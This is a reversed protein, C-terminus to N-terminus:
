CTNSRFLDNNDKGEKSCCIGVTVDITHHNLRGSPAGVCAGVIISTVTPDVVLPTRSDHMRLRVAVDVKTSSPM